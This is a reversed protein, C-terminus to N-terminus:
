VVGEGLLRDAALLADRRSRTVQPHARVRGVELLEVLGGLGAADVLREVLRLASAHRTRELGGPSPFQISQFVTRPARAASRLWVSRRPVGVGLWLRLAGANGGRPSSGAGFLLM